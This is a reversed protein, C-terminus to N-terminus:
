TLIQSIVHFASSLDDSQNHRFTMVLLAAEREVDMYRKFDHDKNGTKTTFSLM